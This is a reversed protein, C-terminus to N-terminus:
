QPAGVFLQAKLMHAEVANKGILHPRQDALTPLENKGKEIGILDEIKQKRYAHLREYFETEHRLCQSGPALGYKAVLAIHSRGFIVPIPFHQDEFQRLMPHLLVSNRFYALPIELDPVLRVQMMKPGTCLFIVELQIVM